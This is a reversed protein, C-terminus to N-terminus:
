SGGSSNPRGHWWSPAAPSPVVAASQEQFPTSTRWALLVQATATVFLLATALFAIFPILLRM